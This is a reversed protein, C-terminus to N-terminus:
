IGERTFSVEYTFLVKSPFCPQEVEKHLFWMTFQVRRPHDEANLEQVRHIHFPHKGNDHLVEWM